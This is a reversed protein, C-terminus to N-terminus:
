PEDALTSIAAKLRETLLDYAERKSMREFTGDQKYINGRFEENLNEAKLWVEGSPKPLPETRLSSKAANHGSFGSKAKKGRGAEAAGPLAVMAAFLIPLLRRM